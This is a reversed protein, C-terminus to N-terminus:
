LHNLYSKLNNFVTKIFVCIICRVTTKMQMWLVSFVHFEFVSTLLLVSVQLLAGFICYFVCGVQTFRFACRTAVRSGDGRSSRRTGFARRWLPSLRVVRGCPYWRGTLLLLDWTDHSICVVNHWLWWRRNPGSRQSASLLFATQSVLQQCRWRLRAQSACDTGESTAAMTCTTASLNFRPALLVHLGWLPKSRYPQTNYPSHANSSWVSRTNLCPLAVMLIWIVRSNWNRIPPLTLNITDNFRICTKKCSLLRTYNWKM